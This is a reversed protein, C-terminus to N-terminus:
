FVVSDQTPFDLGCDAHTIMTMPKMKDKHFSSDVLSTELYNKETYQPQIPPCPLESKHNMTIVMEDNVTLYIKPDRMNYGGITIM